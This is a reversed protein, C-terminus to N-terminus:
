ANALRSLESNNILNALFPQEYHCGFIGGGQHDFIGGGEDLNKVPDQPSVPASPPPFPLLGYPEKREGGGEPFSLLSPCGM